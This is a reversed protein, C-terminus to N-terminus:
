GHACGLSADLWAILAATSCAGSRFGIHGDPRVAWVMGSRAGFRAAFEGASDVLTRYRESAGAATGLAVIRLANSAAGLASRWADVADAFPADDFDGAFYDVLAHRGGGIHAALRQRHGIFDETLGGAEPVRDGPAPLEPAIDGCEDAVIPSDRYAVLLQTERMAPKVEGHALVTNLARSTSEVMDLGVPRREAEYSELLSEHALGRAALTLKWALNHADQLGTNM